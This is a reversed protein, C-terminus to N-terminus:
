PGPHLRVCDSFQGHGQDMASWESFQGHDQVRLHVTVSSDVTSVWVVAM